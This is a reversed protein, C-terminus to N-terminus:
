SAAREAVQPLAPAAHADGDGATMDSGAPDLRGVMHSAALRPMLLRWFATVSERSLWEQDGRGLVELGTTSATIVTAADQPAVGEALAGESGARVLQRRVFDQWQSRLDSRTADVVDCSLRFGARVVLDSRLRSVMAHSADALVQLAPEDSSDACRTITLLAERAESEVAAALSEKDEFHFHFAGTSVGARASIGSVRSSAYGYEDFAAAASHILARRTREAREQKRM